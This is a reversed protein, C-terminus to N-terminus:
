RAAVPQRHQIVARVRERLHNLQHASLPIVTGTQANVDIVGLPDLHVDQLSFAISFQWVPPDLPMWLGGSASYKMALQQDLWRRALRRAQHRSVYGDADRALEGRLRAVEWDACERTERLQDAPLTIVSGTQADVAVRGVICPQNVNTRQCGILFHWRGQAYTGNTAAYDVGLVAMLYAGATEHAEAQSVRPPSSIPRELTTQM